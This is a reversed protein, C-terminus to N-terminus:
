MKHLATMGRVDKEIKQGMHVPRDCPFDKLGPFMNLLGQSSDQYIDITFHKPM